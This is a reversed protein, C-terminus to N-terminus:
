AGHLHGYHILEVDAQEFARRVAPDCLAALEARRREGLRSLGAALGDGCGPHTMIEVVGVPARQAALILWAADILGTHAIGWTGDTALFGSGKRRRCRGLANLVLRVGRQKLPAWPWRRGPLVERHRRVYPIDYRRALGIVRAFIPGYGHCHRHTDLHSPSIGRDLAWRIQADFEAEIVGLLAPRRMCARILGLGGRSMQGDDGALARGPESLPPGQSANLHVGVGLDPADALRGVAEAAAPMNAALTTSTVIGGRHARLIGDSIAASFGFDDANVIVRKPGPRETM